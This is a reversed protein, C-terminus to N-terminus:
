GSLINILFWENIKYIGLYVIPLFLITLLFSFDLFLSQSFSLLDNILFATIIAPSTLLIDKYSIPNDTKYNQGLFKRVSEVYLIFLLANVSILLIFIKILLEIIPLNIKTLDRILIQDIIFFVIITIIYFIMHHKEIDEKIIQKTEQM